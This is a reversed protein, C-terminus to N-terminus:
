PQLHLGWAAAGASRLEEEECGRGATATVGRGMRLPEGVVGHENDQLGLREGHPFAAVRSNSLSIFVERRDEAASLSGVVLMWDHRPWYGDCAMLSTM